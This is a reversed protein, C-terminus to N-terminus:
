RRQADADARASRNAFPGRARRHLWGGAKRLARSVTTPGNRREMAQGIRGLLWALVPVGVALLLWIRLRASFFAWM